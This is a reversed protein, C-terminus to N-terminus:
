KWKINCGLSPKQNESPPVGKLLCDIASILDEGTVTTETSPRSSDYQGRYRLAGTGDFLYFDPTCAAALRKAVEQTPDLLFPFEYGFTEIDKRMEEPGDQPYKEIDNSNIAYIRVKEAYARSFEGLSKKLHVVYPCHSCIFTILQPKDSTAPIRHTTGFCDKLEFSFLKFGLELM